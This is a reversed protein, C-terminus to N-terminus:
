KPYFFFVSRDLWNLTVTVNIISRCSYSIGIEDWETTLSTPISKTINMQFQFRLWQIFIALFLNLFNFNFFLFTLFYHSIIHHLQVWYHINCRIWIKNKKYIKNNCHFNVFNSYFAFCVRLNQLTNKKIKEKTTLSFGQCCWTPKLFLGNGHSSQFAMAM